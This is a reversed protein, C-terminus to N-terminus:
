YEESISRVRVRPRNGAATDTLFARVSDNGTRLISVAWASQKPTLDRRRNFMGRLFDHERLTIAGCEYLLTIKARSLHKLELPVHAAVLAELEWLAKLMKVADDMAADEFYHICESGIPELLVGTLPNSIRFLYVLGKQGCVCQADRGQVPEGGAPEWERRADDWTGSVSNAIVAEVLAPRGRGSKVDRM